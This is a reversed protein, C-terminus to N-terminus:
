VEQKCQVLRLGVLDRIQLIKDHDNAEQALVVKIREALEEDEIVDRIWVTLRNFDIQPHPTHLLAFVEELSYLSLRKIGARVHLSHAVLRDEFDVEQLILSIVKKSPTSLNKM